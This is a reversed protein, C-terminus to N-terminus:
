YAISFLSKVIHCSYSFLGALPSSFAQQETIILLFGHVAYICHPPRSFKNMIVVNSYKDPVAMFCILDRDTKIQTKDTINITGNCLQLAACLRLSVVTLVDFLLCVALVFDLPLVFFVAAAGALGDELFAATLAAESFRLFTLFVVVALCLALFDAM